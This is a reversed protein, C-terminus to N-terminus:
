IVGCLFCIEYRCNRGLIEERTYETLELFSDSAFIIPNDPLRPDTIVFNKEIRELTTALDIGQRIDRERELRDWSDSREVDKTMLVEPEIIPQHDHREAYSLSRGKFGMFSIRGSKRSKKGADHDLMATSVDSKADMQPTQRGPTSLNEIESSKPLFYDLNFKEQDEPKPPTQHDGGQIHARPHKVTQVVETISCLAKDKQRSDYCILSNPLGNPRLVKDNLGETYKSVEVQM